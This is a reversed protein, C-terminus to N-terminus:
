ALFWEGAFVTPKGYFWEFMACTSVVAGLTKPALVHIILTRAIASRQTLSEHLGRSYIM